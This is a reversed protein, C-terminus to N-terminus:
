FVERSTNPCRHFQIVRIRPLPHFGTIPMARTPINMEVMLVAISSTNRFALIFDAISPQPQLQEVFHQAVARPQTPTHITSCKKTMM